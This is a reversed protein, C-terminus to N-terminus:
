FNDDTLDAENGLDRQVTEPEPDPTLNTEVTASQDTLSETVPEAPADDLFSTEVVAKDAGFTDEIEERIALGALCDAFGDRQPFAQARVLLMRKPSTFWPVKKTNDWLKARKSDGVTFRGIYPTPQGKRFLQVMFGFDDPWQERPTSDTDFGSGVETVIRDALQGSAQILAMAADGWITPRGNIIAIQRLGYLPPLGAEMAAALGLMVKSPDNSYSDPALRAQVVAVAMRYAEDLTKPVIYGHEGTELAPKPKDPQAVLASSTQIPEDGPNPDDTRDDTM